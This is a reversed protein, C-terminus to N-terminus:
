KSKSKVISFPVCITKCIINNTVNTIVVNSPIKGGNPGQGIFAQNSHNGIKNAVVAFTINQLSNPNIVNNSQCNVLTRNLRNVTITSAQCTWGATSSNGVTQFILGESLTDSVTIQGTTNATGTNGIILTYNFDVGLNAITPATKNLVLNVPNTCSNITVTVPQSAPSYCINFAYLYYTGSLVQTPSSVLTSVSPTSSVTHWEFTQGQIASPQLTTLDATTLPCINSKTNALLVPAIPCDQNIKLQPQLNNNVPSDFFKNFNNIPQVYINTTEYTSSVKNGTVTLSINGGV